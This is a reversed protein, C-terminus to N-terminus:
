AFNIPDEGQLAALSRTPAFRCALSGAEFTMDRESKPNDGVEHYHGDRSCIQSVFGIESGAILTPRVPMM